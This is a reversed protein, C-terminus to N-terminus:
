LAVELQWLGDAQKTAFGFARLKAVLGRRPTQCTLRRYGWGRAIRIIEPLVTATLDIGPAHARAACINLSPGDDYHTLVFSGVRQGMFRIEYAIARRDNLDELRWDARFHPFREALDVLDAAVGEDAFRPLLEVGQHDSRGAPEVKPTCAM